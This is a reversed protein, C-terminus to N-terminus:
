RTRRDIGVDTAVVETRDSMAQVQSAIRAPSATSATAPAAPAADASGSARHGSSRRPGIVTAAMVATTM